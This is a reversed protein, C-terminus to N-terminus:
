KYKKNKSKQSIIFMYISYYLVLILVSYIMFMNKFYIFIIVLLSLIYLLLLMFLYYIVVLGLRSVLATVLSDLFSKLIIIFFVFLSASIMVLYILYFWRDRYIITITVWVIEYM